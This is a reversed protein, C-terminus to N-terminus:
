VPAGQLRRLASAAGTVLSEVVERAPLTGEVLGVAEGVVVPAVDDDAVARRYAARRPRAGVAAHIRAVYPSPDGFSLM